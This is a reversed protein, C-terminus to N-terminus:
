RRRGGQGRLLVHSAPLRMSNPQNTGYLEVVFDSFDSRGYWFIREDHDPDRVRGLGHVHHPQRARRAKHVRM